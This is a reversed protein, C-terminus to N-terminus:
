EAGEPTEDGIKYIVIGATVQTVKSLEIVGGSVSVLQVTPPPGNVKVISFGMTPSMKMHASGILDTSGNVAVAFNAGDATQGMEPVIFWKIFYDGCFRLTFAGDISSYEITGDDALADDFLMAEGPGVWSYVRSQRQMHPFPSESITFDRTLIETVPNQVPNTPDGVYQYVIVVEYGGPEDFKVGAILQALNLGTPQGDKYVTASSITVTNIANITVTVVDALTCEATEQDITILLWPIFPDYTPPPSPQESEGPLFPDTVDVPTGLTISNPTAPGSGPNTIAWCGTGWSQVEFETITNAFTVYALVRKGVQEPGFCLTFRAQGGGGSRGITIGAYVPNNLYPAITNMVVTGDALNTGTLAGSLAPPVAAVTRWQIIFVGDAL